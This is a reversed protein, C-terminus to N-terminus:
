YGYSSDTGAYTYDGYAASDDLADASEDTSYSADVPLETDAQTITEGNEVRDMLEQAKQVTEYDPQMVYVPISMSYPVQTDGYGTVSYQVVNWSGGDSLQRRVLAAIDSYPVNMDFCDELSELISTYNMLIEPSMAKDIVASIVKMQNKGRQIDGDVFSYRERAFQLAEDGDLTNVGLPYDYKSTSFAIDNYLTIGGLADVIGKFGTFDLRFYYDVNTEYLMELTEISVDVGYIGAHTLKDPVGDSISLPVYYDRPTTVLLIQRTETNITALINVDSRGVTHLGERSDSGSIYLTYVEQVDTSGTDVVAQSQEETETEVHMIELERVKSEFDTYGETEGLVDIYALNLVIADCEGALLGDALQTIGAYEQTQVAAGLASEIESLGADTNTRDLTSLIGFSYGVTDSISQAADEARVYVAVPTSQTRTESIRSLTSTTRYLYYGGVALVATLILALLTGLVFQVKFATNRVLLAAATALMVLAVGAPVLLHVPIFQTWTLVAIFAAVVVAMVLTIVLGPIRGKWKRM